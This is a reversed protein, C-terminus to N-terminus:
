VAATALQSNISYDCNKPMGNLLEAVNKNVTDVEGAKLTIADFSRNLAQQLGLCQVAIDAVDARPISKTERKLLVDDVDVVIQRKGGDEDVLGGPHIITYPVGSAMLYQEAKRKWQLINGAGLNNLPNSPDTGGMSSVLVVQKLGAAKAADIQAKQGLWDVQEPMQGEKWKFEPRVGQKGTLKALFVPILSLPKIQPVGSTCIVLAGTGSLVAQLQNSDAKSIDVAYISSDPLGLQTLKSATQKGRVAARVETFKSPQQLLKQVVLAGTRGAAGTVVVKMTGQQMCRIATVRRSITRHQLSRALATHAKFASCAPRQTTLM